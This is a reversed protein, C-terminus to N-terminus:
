LWKFSAIMQHFGDVNDVGDPTLLTVIALGNPGPVYYRDVTSPVQKGTVPDPPSPLHFALHQYSMGGITVADQKILQFGAEAKLKPLDVSAVYGPVDTTPAVVAVTESSDKDRVVVGDAQPTVQWGEVYDISFRSATSSAFTLFVANDPIDGSTTGGGTDPAASTTAGPSASGPDSASPVTGTSAAPASPVAGTTASPTPGAGTSCAAVALAVLTTGLAIARRRARLDLRTRGGNRVHLM